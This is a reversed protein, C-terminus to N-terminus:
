KLNRQERKTIERLFGRVRGAMWDRPGIAIGSFNGDKGIIYTTPIGRVIYSRRVEGGADLLVPFTFHYRGIYDEVQKKGRGDVAVALLVLEEGKLGEWLQQLTPLEERCPKCWTAWFHLLVVKGRYDHLSVRKGNLTRLTFNPAEKRIRPTQIGLLSLQESGGVDQFLYFVVVFVLFAKLFHHQRLTSEEKVLFGEFFASLKLTLWCTASKKKVRGVWLICPRNWTVPRPFPLLM